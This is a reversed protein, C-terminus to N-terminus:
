YGFKLVNSLYTEWYDSDPFLVRNIPREGLEFQTGPVRTQEKNVYSYVATSRSPELHLGEAGLSRQAQRLTTMRDFAVAVQWHNFGTAEGVEQQGCLYRVRDPLEQPPNWRNLPFTGLWFRAQRSNQPGAQFAEEGWAAELVTPFITPSTTLDITTPSSTPGFSIGSDSMISILSTLLHL